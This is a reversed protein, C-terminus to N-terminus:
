RVASLANSFRVLEALAKAINTHPGYPQKAIHEAVEGQETITNAAYTVMVYTPVPIMRVANLVPRLQVQTAEGGTPTNAYAVIVVPKEAAEFALYDLANKLVAPFSRNYEPTVIVYGEADAIKHLWREVVPAPKRDPNFQPSEAEDFFPMPYDRLDVLSVQNDGAKQAERVAWAAVRDGVRGERTSGLIVAIKMFIKRRLPISLITLIIGM